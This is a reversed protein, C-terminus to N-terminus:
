NLHYISVCVLAVVCAALIILGIFVSVALPAARIHSPVNSRAKSPQIVLWMLPTAIFVFGIFAMLSIIDTGSMHQFWIWDITM